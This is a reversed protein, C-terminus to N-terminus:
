LLCSPSPRPTSGCTRGTTPGTPAVQGPSGSQIGARLMAVRASDPGPRQDSGRHPSSMGATTEFKLAAGVAGAGLAASALLISIARM